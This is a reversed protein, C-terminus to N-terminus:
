GFARSICYLKLTVESMRPLGHMTVHLYERTFNLFKGHFDENECSMSYCLMHLIVLRPTCCPMFNWSVHFTVLCIMYVAVPGSLALVYSLLFLNVVVAHMYGSTINVFMLCVVHWKHTLCSVFLCIYRVTLLAAVQWKKALEGQVHASLM